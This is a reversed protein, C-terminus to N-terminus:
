VSDKRDPRGRMWSITVSEDPKILNIAKGMLWKREAEM